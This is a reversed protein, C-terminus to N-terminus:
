WPPRAESSRRRARRVLADLGRRVDEPPEVPLPSRDRAEELLARLAELRGRWADLEFPALRGKEAGTQKRHVLEGVEIGLPSTVDSLAEALRPLNADVEGTRMLWIGSMAVRLCYLLAKVTGKREAERVQGALFGLYHHAHHVTPCRRALAMLEEHEEGTVIVIPSLVQELVYGNRKLLLGAFKGVETSVLDLEFNGDRLMSRHEDPGDPRLGIFSEMPSAHCARLDWDSDPSAFGYLHAGSVTAFVLRDTFRRAAEIVRADIGATEGGLPSPNPRRSPADLARIERVLQLIRHVDPREPLPSDQLAADFERQLELRWAEYDDWTIEGHKVALLRDRLPGVDLAMEGNRLLSTGASLLRALHMAHKWNPEGSRLDSRLRRLQSLVYGGYTIFAHRSLFSRRSDRLHAGEPSIFLIEPSWLCELTNPDAKLALWVFRGLEWYYEENNPRVGTLPELQWRVDLYDDRPCVFIGRVDTDSGDTELGYARSGTVAKLLLGQEVAGMGDRRPLLALLDRQSHKQLHLSNGAWEEVAGDAYRVEYRDSGLWAAVEAVRGRPDIVSTGVPIQPSKRGSM